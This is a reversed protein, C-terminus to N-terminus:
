VDIEIIRQQRIAEQAAIAIKVAAAGVYVDTRPPPGGAIAGLFEAYLERTSHSKDGTNTEITRPEEGPRTITIRRGARPFEMVGETGFLRTNARHAKAFLCLGLTLKIGDEYEIVVSAHDMTDRDTYVGAGGMGAVRLPRKGILHGLIDFDHCTKEVLSGGSSKKFFRWNRAADEEPDEYLTKWDGRFEEAWVYKLDGIEGADLLEKAKVYVPAYRLQLAVAFVRDGRDVAEVLADADAVTTTMPKECIVHHGADLADLAIQKHTHNPTTIAVADCLGSAVLERHDTFTKVEGGRAREAGDQAREPIIDCTATIRCHDSLAVMDAIHGKARNGIGVVGIRVRNEAMTQRRSSPMTAARRAETLRYKRFRIILRSGDGAVTISHGSVFLAKM